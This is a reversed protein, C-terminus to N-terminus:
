ASPPWRMSRAPLGPQPPGTRCDRPQTELRHSRPRSSAIPHGPMRSSPSPSHARRPTAGARSGSHCSRFNRSGPRSHGQSKPSGQPEPPSRSRCPVPRSGRPNSWGGSSGPASRPGEGYVEIHLDRGHRLRRGSDHDAHPKCAPRNAAAQPLRDRCPQPWAEGLGIRAQQRASSVAPMRGIVCVSRATSESFTRRRTTRHNLRGPKRSAWAAGAGADAIHEGSVLRGVPDAWATPLLGRPGPALPTTSNDGNSNKSRRV